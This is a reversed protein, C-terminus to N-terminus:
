RRFTFRSHWLYSTCVVIIVFATQAIMPPIHGIEVLVPLVALNVAFNLVYFSAFKGFEALYSGQTRFVLLKNTAYAFCVSVVQCVVLVELYNWGFPALALLLIPFIALGFVTNLGGAILFRLKTEHARLRDILRAIRGAKEV